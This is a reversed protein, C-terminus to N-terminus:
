CVDWFTKKTIDFYKSIEELYAKTPLNNQYGRPTPTGIGSKDKEWISFYASGGPKISKSAFELLEERASKEKIVNLVNAVTATDASGYLEKLTEDNFKASRNYKDHVRSFIGFKKKLFNTGKNYKGGGIDINRPGLEAGFKTFLGPVQNQSTGASSIEQAFNPIYGSAFNPIERAVNGRSTIKINKTPTVESLTFGYKVGYKSNAFDYKSGEKVKHKPYDARFQEATEYKIPNGIKAYGVLTADGVGTRVLGVQKGVYPKLGKVSDRTEIVKENKLIEGTYDQIKDNINIGKAFNPIYGKAMYPDVGTRSIANQRHARGAKSGAPPNIFPQAFGPVYKVDEATNMVGGVPSKVVKGPAYGGALAGVAEAMKTATPIYGDAFMGFRKKRPAAQTVTTFTRQSLAAQARLEQNQRLILDLIQAEAQKQTIKGANIQSILGPNRSVVDNIREQIQLEKKSEFVNGSSKALEKFATKGFGGMKVALLGALSGLLPLATRSLGEGLAGAFGKIMQSGLESGVGSPNVLKLLNESVSTGIEVLPRLFSSGLSSAAETATNKIGQLMSSLSKNLEENKKKAEDTASNSISLSNAYVSNSNSLDKILANLQNIQYIGGILEATRSKESQSLNKTADSYNKLIGIGDLLFGNQDRVAVGLQELQGLVEPRQLRTFITKLANGIVAGGRGTTQQAATVAAILSDIGVGSEEASSGVRRIAENLDASSVAFRTDVAILKNTIETAKLAEKGFSNIATTIGQVSDQYGLGSIRALTLAAGTRELVENASLGQRAFEKAAGAADSFPAATNKAIQFLSKSFKDLESTSQGLFTNLEILQKDVEITASAAAVIANKVQLIAGASLGFATVRATAAQMSKNFEAADGSIRGLPQGLRGSSISRVFQNFTAQAQATNLTLNANIQPM